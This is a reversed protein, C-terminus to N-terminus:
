CRARARAKKYKETNWDQLAQTAFQKLWVLLGSCFRHVQESHQLYSEDQPLYPPQPLQFKIIASAATSWGSRKHLMANYVSARRHQQEPTLEYWFEKDELDRKVKVVEAERLPEEVADAHGKRKLFATRYEQLHWWCSVIADIEERTRKRAEDRDRIMCIRENLEALVRDEDETFTINSRQTVRLCLADLRKNWAGGAWEVCSRGILQLILGRPSRTFEHLVSQRSSIIEQDIAATSLELNTTLYPHSQWVRDLHAAAEELRHHRRWIEQTMTPSAQIENESWKWLNHITNRLSGKPVVRDSFGRSGADIILVEHAGLVTAIRLGMNYYHCDSVQIKCLAAMAILRCVALVCADKNCIKQPALDNLPICREVVWCHYEADGDIGIGEWYLEPVINYQRPATANMVAPEPDWECNPTRLRMKLICGDYCGKTHGTQKIIFVTKSQGHNVYRGIYEAEPFKIRIDASLDPVRPHNARYNADIENLKSLQIKKKLRSDQEENHESAGVNGPSELQPDWDVNSSLTENRDGRRVTFHLETDRYLSRRMLDTRDTGIGNVRTIVDGVRVRQSPNKENWRSIVYGRRPQSAIKLSGDPQIELDVGIEDLATSTIRTWHVDIENPTTTYDSAGFVNSTSSSSM